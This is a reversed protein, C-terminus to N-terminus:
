GAAPMAALTATRLDELSVGASVIIKGAQGDGQRLLGLLLHETGIEKQHLRVAERLSLEIVKRAQSTFRTRGSNPAQKRGLFGRRREREDEEASDGSDLAGQGFSEEVRALVADLDIGISRLATADDDTLTNAPSATLRLIEARVQAADLGTGHLVTYSIGADENLLALLIHQTGAPQRGLLDAEKAARTIVDRAQTTFRELM